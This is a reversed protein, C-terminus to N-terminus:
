NFNKNRGLLMSDYFFANMHRKIFIFYQKSIVKDHLKKTM